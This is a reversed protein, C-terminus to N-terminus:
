DGPKTASAHHVHQHSIRQWSNALPNENGSENLSNENYVRLHFRRPFSGGHRACSVCVVVMLVAWFAAVKRYDVSVMSVVGMVAVEVVFVFTVPILADRGLAAVCMLAVVVLMAWFASMFCDLVAIMDVVDM